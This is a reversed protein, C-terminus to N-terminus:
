PSVCSTSTVCQLANISIQCGLVGKRCTNGTFTTGSSSAGTNFIANIGNGLILNNSILGPATGSPAPSLRLLDIAFSGVLGLNHERYNIVNDQITIPNTGGTTRYISTLFGDLYNRRAVANNNGMLIGLTPYRYELHYGNVAIVPLGLITNDEVTSCFQIAPNSYGAVTSGARAQSITIGSIRSNTSGSCDVAYSWPGRIRPTPDNLDLSASSFVASNAGTVRVGTACSDMSDIPDEEDIVCRIDYGRMDLDAGNVLTVATQSPDCVLNAALECDTTCTVGCSTVPFAHVTSAVVMVINASCLAVCLSRFRFSRM